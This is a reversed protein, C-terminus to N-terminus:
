LSLMGLYDRAIAQEKSVGLSTLIKTIVQSKEEADKRSWTRSKIEIFKGLSPKTITDLNIFFEKGDIDVLYRLRDKEIDYERLPQFYERYFRLSQKAEAIYRSRSLVVGHPYKYESAPGIHTIRSRVNTVKDSEDIFHDERFRLYGQEQETFSFYTDYERYHRKRIISNKMANLKELFPGLDAVPVKAQVEFSEEQSVGGIAILKSIISKEREMLFSDIRVAYSQSSRILDSENLTLLQHNEMLFRGNVMVDSVDTSKGAYVLQAYISNSGRKFQPSNHISSIDVLILDARKGVELSGTLHDIHLAKAGTSTVMSLITRAPLATPDASFNKGLFSALRMEEFMDLDNNSAAGDTGIGVHVDLELMRRVPAIGSALKLNSSPNHVVGVGYHQLTRIEGEDIHVCHAAIVKPDFLNNKKLFPVVPMGTESRINEVELATESIHTILPVDLEVALSSCMQLLESTCTYAAHPAIAPIILQHHKWRSIFGRTYALSEEFSGADPTPFKLITEGCIGRLGANSAARAVEEEFYYMDCFTTVGGRILEACALQTGLRVFEPTVFEREVPMMYGMLWVDLRLDDALSRLLNMPLHTHGNIIGPMLVKGKCDYKRAPSYRAMLATDTGVAVISDGSIAVAGPMFQNFSDDMTLVCANHFLTDVKDM